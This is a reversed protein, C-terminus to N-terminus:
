HQDPIRATGALGEQVLLNVTLKEFSVRHDFGLGQVFQVVPESWQHLAFLALADKLRLGRRRVGRWSPCVEPFM